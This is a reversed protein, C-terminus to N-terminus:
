TFLEEGWCQRYRHSIIGVYEQNRLNDPDSNGGPGGNYQALAIKLSDQPSNGRKRAHRINDALLMPGYRFYQPEWLEEPTGSFGLSKATPYMLQFPGYSAAIRTQAVFNYNNRGKERKARAPNKDFWEAVTQGSKIWAADKSWRSPKSSIYRRDYNPEYRYAQQTWSSEQLTQAVLLKYNLEFENALDHIVPFIREGDRVLGQKPLIM